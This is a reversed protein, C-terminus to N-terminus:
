AKSPRIGWREFMAGLLEMPLGVVNSFSGDLSQVFADDHDQIGYAGAKGRWLNSALYADLTEPPMPTMVVRTVAHATEERGTAADILTVGTIVQHPSHMLDTLIRRADDADVAKGYLRGNLAVVTDAGLVVGCKLRGAVARAKLQALWEAIQAPDVGEDFESPEDVDSPIVDFVYAAERLLEERRPSASALVFRVVSPTHADNM